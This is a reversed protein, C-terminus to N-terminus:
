PYTRAPRIGLLNLRDGPSSFYRGASRCYGAECCWGGGRLVRRSGDPPGLPDGSNDGVFKEYYKADYGDQCWEWVNGHMDRLGFANPVKEGVPHSM